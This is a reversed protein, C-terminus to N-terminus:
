IAFGLNKRFQASAAKADTAAKDGNPLASCFADIAENGLPVWKELWRAFVEKNEARELATKVLAATWRRSRECDKMHNDVLMATLNDGNARAAKSFQRVFAEDIARMAVMNLACFSEGWDYAVLVHEMLKRFGQWAPATEWQKREDRAFGRDPFQNALEKTRYAIRSLWRFSDGEQFVACNTVTSAPAIQVLYASAMQLTAMLYRGPTYLKELRDICGTNLSLDHQNAAHDSLLEDVFQEQGDQMTTYARYTVQDPDRFSDWDPHQLPSRVVNRIYWQNMYTNPDQEYPAEPNRTRYHLKYSVVEYESPRKRNGALASWTKLGPRVNTSTDQAKM